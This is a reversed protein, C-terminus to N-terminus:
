CIKRTSIWRGACSRCLRTKPNKKIGHRATFAMAGLLTWFFVGIIQLMSYRLSGCEYKKEKCFIM